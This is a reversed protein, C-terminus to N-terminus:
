GDIVVVSDVDPDEELEELNTAPVHGTLETDVAAEVVLGMRELRDATDQDYSDALSVCVQRRDDDLVIDFDGNQEFTDESSARLASVGDMDLINCSLDMLGLECFRVYERYTFSFGRHRKQLYKGDPFVVEYKPGRQVKKGGTALMVGDQFWYICSGREHLRYGYCHKGARTLMYTNERIREQTSKVNSKKAFNVWNEAGGYQRMYRECLEYLKEWRCFRDKYEALACLIAHYCTGPTAPVIFNNIQTMRDEPIKKSKLLSYNRKRHRSSRKKPM